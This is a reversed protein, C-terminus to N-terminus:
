PMGLAGGVGSRPWRASHMARHSADPGLTTPPTALPLPFSSIPITVVASIATHFPPSALAGASTSGFSTFASAVRAKWSYSRAAHTLCSHINPTYNHATHVGYSQASSLFRGNGPQNWEYRPSSPFCSFLFAGRECSRLSSKVSYDSYAHCPLDLIRLFQHCSVIVTANQFSGLRVLDQAM